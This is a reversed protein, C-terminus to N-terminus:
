DPSKPHTEEKQARNETSSQRERLATDEGKVSVKEEKNDIGWLKSPQNQHQMTQPLDHLIM